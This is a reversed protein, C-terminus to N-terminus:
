TRCAALKRDRGFVVRNDFSMGHTIYGVQERLPTGDGWRGGIQWGSDSYESIKVEKKEGPPLTGLAFQHTWIVVSLDAIQEGSENVIVLRAEQRLWTRLGLWGAIAIFSVVLIIIRKM